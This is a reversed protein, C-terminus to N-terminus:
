GSHPAPVDEFASESWRALRYESTGSVRLAAATVQLPHPPADIVEDLGPRLPHAALSGRDRTILVRGVGPRAVAMLRALAEEEQPLELVLVNPVPGVDQALIDLVGFGGARLAARVEDFRRGPLRVAAVPVGLAPTGAPARPAGVRRTPQSADWAPALRLPEPRVAPITPALRPATTTTM